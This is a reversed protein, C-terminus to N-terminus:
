VLRPPHSVPHGEHLLHLLRIDALDAGGIPMGLQCKRSAIEVLMGVQREQNANGLPMGLECKWNAFDYSMDHRQFM